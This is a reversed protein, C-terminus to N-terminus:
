LFAAWMAFSVSRSASRPRSSKLFTISSSPFCFGASLLFIGHRVTIAEEQAAAQNRSTHPMGTPRTGGLPLCRDSPAQIRESRPITYDRCVRDDVSVSSSIM